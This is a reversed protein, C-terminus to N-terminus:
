AAVEDLVDHLCVWDPKNWGRMVWEGGLLMLYHYEAGSGFDQFFSEEDVYSRADVNTEGRDRKYFTCEYERRERFDHKTGIHPGLSSLDGHEMLILVKDREYNEYLIRGNYRPYGDWHCYVARISGDELQVGIASRTSM